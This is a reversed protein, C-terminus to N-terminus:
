PQGRFTRVDVLSPTVFSPTSYRGCLLQHTIVRSNPGDLGFAKVTPDAEQRDTPNMDNRVSHKGTKMRDDQISITSPLILHM